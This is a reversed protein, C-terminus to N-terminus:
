CAIGHPSLNDKANGGVLICTGGKNKPIGSVQSYGGTAFKNHLDLRFPGFDFSRIQVLCAVPSGQM